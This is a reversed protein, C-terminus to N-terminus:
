KKKKSYSRAIRFTRMVAESGTSCLIFKSYWNLIKKLIISYELTPNSLMSYITGKHLNKKIYEILEEDAHGL